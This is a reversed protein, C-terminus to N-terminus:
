ATLQALPAQWSLAIAALASVVVSIRAAYTISM